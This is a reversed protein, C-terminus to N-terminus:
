PHRRGPRARAGAAPCPGRDRPRRRSLGAPGPRHRARRAGAAARVVGVMRALLPRVLDIGQIRTLPVRVQRAAYCAPTSRSSAATSGGSPSAGTSSARSRPSSSPSRRRDVAPRAAAAGNLGVVTRVAAVSGRGARVLPSLPHLRAWEDPLPHPNRDCVPPGRRASRPWSTACGSAGRCRDLGPIRADTAAAATHLQVTALGFLRDVPGATVDVFQMRGYPVVTLRRIMVGRRVLLDDEREAYGWARYRRWCCSSCRASSRSWSRSSRRRGGAGVGIGSASAAPSWSYSAPSWASSSKDPGGCRRRRTVGTWSSPLTWVRIGVGPWTPQILSRSADAAHKSSGEVGRSRRHRDSASDRSPPHSTRRTPSTRASATGLDRGVPM